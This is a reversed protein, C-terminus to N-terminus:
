RCDEWTAEEPPKGKWQVLVQTQPEREKNKIRKALILQAEYDLSLDTNLGM